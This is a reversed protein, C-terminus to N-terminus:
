PATTAKAWTHMGESWTGPATAWTLGATMILTWFVGGPKKENVAAEFATRNPIFSEELVVLFHYADESGEANRREILIGREVLTHSTMVLTSNKYIATEVAQTTGRTFGQEEKILARAEAESAVQPIEVGVFQALYPLYKAPCLDPDFLKGWSPIFAPLSQSISDGEPGTWYFGDTDGDCYKEITSVATILIKGVTAPAATRVAFRALGSATPILTVSRRKWGGGASQTFSISAEGVGASGLLAQLKKGAIEEYVSFYVTLPVGAVCPFVAETALGENISIGATTVEIYSNLGFISSAQPYNPIDHVDIVAGGNIFFVPGTTWGAASASGNGDHAFSPNPVQNQIIPASEGDTGREGVLELIPDFMSGIADCYRELDETLWPELAAALRQGFPSTITFSV